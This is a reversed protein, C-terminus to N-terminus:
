STNEKERAEEEVKQDQEQERLSLQAQFDAFLEMLNAAASLSAFELRIFFSYIL